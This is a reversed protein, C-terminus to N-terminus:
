DARMWQLTAHRSEDPVQRVVPHAYATERWAQLKPGYRPECAFHALLTDALTFTAPFAREALGITEGALWPRPDVCPIPQTM